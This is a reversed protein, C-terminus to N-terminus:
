TSPCSTALVEGAHHRRGCTGCVRRGRLSVYRDDGDAWSAGNGTAWCVRQGEEIDETVDKGMSVVEGWMVGDDAEGVAEVTDSPAAPDDPRVLIRAGAAYFRRGVEPDGTAGISMQNGIVALLNDSPTDSGCGVCTATTMLHQCQMGQWTFREGNDVDRHVRQLIVKTGLVLPPVARPGVGIVVGSPIHIEEGGLLLGTSSDVQGKYHVGDDSRGEEVKLDLVSVVIQSGTTRITRM